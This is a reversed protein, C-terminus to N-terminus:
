LMKLLAIEKDSLIRYKGKPLDKKTLHAICVREQKKIKIDNMQFLKRIAGDLEGAIEIGIHLPHENIFSVETVNVEYDKMKLGKKLENLQEESVPKLTDVQYIVRHNSENSLLKQNLAQDNTLLLLGSAYKDMKGVPFIREECADRMINMVSKGESFDKKGSGYGVPKNLLFYVPLEGKLVKGEYEIKDRRNVKFGMETIVKGNVKVLGKKILEDAERRNCIGSNSIYKNLRIKDEGLGKEWPKSPKEYEDFDRKKYFEKKKFDGEKNRDFKRKKVDQDKRKFDSREEKKPSSFFGENLSTSKPKQPKKPDKM